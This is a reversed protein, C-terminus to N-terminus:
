IEVLNHKILTKLIKASLRKNIKIKNRIETLSNKSDSYQLFDTLKKSFYDEKRISLSPYLNRKSLFPECLVTSRPYKQSMLFLVANKVVEYGGQLGSKTVLSFNDDSTHYEPYEGFKTRCVTAIPLDIGPSNYQREDSGRYLFDYIKPKIGLKKYAFELAKNSLSNEYKSFICSHMRDDGICTLNYGAIVNKKLKELNKHLYTIAGITEPIFIFRLTKENKKFKKFYNILAMSVIPGSLENNAMSPHCIYTSLLIEQKSRGPVVIEGFSLTGKSNFKSKIIIKFRDSDDYKKEIKKKNEYTTCFGWYRKYYSTIYPISKPREKLSHLRKLLEKKSVKKNIPISYGVLHLNNLKFNIIKKNYKDLIYADSVDWSPPVRWDFVNSKSKIKNIKLAPFQKKIIKLTKLTGKGTLSRCLPFLDKKAIKLYEKISM